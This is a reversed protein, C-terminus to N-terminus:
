QADDAFPLSLGHAGFDSPLLGRCDSLFLCSVFLLLCEFFRRRKKSQAAEPIFGPGIAAAETTKTEKKPTVTM